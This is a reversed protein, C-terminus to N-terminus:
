SGALDILESGAPVILEHEGYGLGAAFGPSSDTYGLAMTVTSKGTRLGYGLLEGMDTEIYVTSGIVVPPTPRLKPTKAAVLTQSNTVFLGIDNAFAPPYNSNFNDVPQGTKASLAIGDYGNQVSSDEVYLVGDYLVPTSGGSGECPGSYHWIQGGSTPNFDYTQPCAYSVYVGDKSLAPSSNDGNMVSATWLLM